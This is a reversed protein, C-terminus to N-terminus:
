RLEVKLLGKYYSSEPDKTILEIDIQNIEDFHTDSIYKIVLLPWGCYIVPPSLYLMIGALESSFGTIVGATIAMPIILLSIYYLILNYPNIM